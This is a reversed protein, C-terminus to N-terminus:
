VLGAIDFCQGVFQCAQLQLRRALAHSRCRALAHLRKERFAPHHFLEFELNLREPSVDPLRIIADGRRVHGTLRGWCGRFSVISAYATEPSYMISVRRCNRNHFYMWLRFFRRKTPESCAPRAAAM